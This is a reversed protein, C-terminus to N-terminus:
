PMPFVLVQIGDFRLFLSFRQLFGSGLSQPMAAKTNPPISRWGGVPKRLTASLQNLPARFRIKPAHDLEGGNGFVKFDPKRM